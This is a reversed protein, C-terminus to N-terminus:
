PSELYFYLRYYPTFRIPTRIWIQFVATSLPLLKGLTPDAMSFRNIIGGTTQSLLVTLPRFHFNPPSENTFTPRPTSALVIASASSVTTSMKSNCHQLHASPETTVHQLMAAWPQPVCPLTPQRATLCPLMWTCLINGPFPQPTKPYYGACLASPQSGCPFPFYFLIFFPFKKIM